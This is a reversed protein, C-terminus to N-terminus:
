GDSEEMNEYISLDPQDTLEGQRYTERERFGEDIEVCPLRDADQTMCLSVIREITELSTIRYKHAREISRIFLAPTMQKSVAFLKRIFGHREIGKPKLAFDLYAGVEESMERLMKEEQQTPERRNHPEFRPKPLGEPSFRGNKVGAAPLPYEALCEGAQYIKMRDAYEL